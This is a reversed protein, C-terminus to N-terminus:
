NRITQYTKVQDNILYKRSEILEKNNSLNKGPRKDFIEKKRDIGQEMVRFAISFKTWRDHHKSFPSRNFM